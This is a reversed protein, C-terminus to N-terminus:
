AAGPLTQRYAVSFASLLADAADLAQDATITLELGGAFRILLQPVVQAGDLRPQRTSAFARLTGILGSVVTPVVLETRGGASIEVVDAVPRATFPLQDSMGQVTGGGGSGVVLGTRRDRIISMIRFEPHCREWGGAPRCVTLTRRIPLAKRDM